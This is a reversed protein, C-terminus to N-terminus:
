IESFRYPDNRKGTGTRGVDGASFLRNLDRRLTREAVTPGHEPWDDQIEEITKPKTPSLVRDIADRKARRAAVAPDGLSVFGAGPQLEIVVEDIDSRGLINIKRRPDKLDTPVFRRLELMNDCGAGFQGSGRFGQGEAGDGKRLHHIILVGAGADAIEELPALADSVEASINEDRIPGLRSLTDIVVLDYQGRKVAQLVADLFANWVQYGPKGRKFPRCLFQVHDGLTIQEKEFRRQWTKHSEETVYLVRGPKVDNHIRGGREMMHILHLLLTTKGAKWLASLMTVSHTAIFSEWIWEPDPENPFQSAPIPNFRFFPETDGHKKGVSERARRTEESVEAAIEGTTMLQGESNVRIPTRVKGNPTLHSFSADGNCQRAFQELEAETSAVMEGCGSLGMVEIRSDRYISDTLMRKAFDYEATRWDNNSDADHM